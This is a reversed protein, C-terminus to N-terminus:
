RPEKPKDPDKGLTKEITKELDKLKAKLEDTAANAEQPSRVVRPTILVVIETKSTSRGSNGFLAGVVPLDGLLPVRNRSVDTSERIFGSLAITEGDSVSIASTVASKNIVPSVIASTTNPVASSIEQSIDLNVMGADGIQPKVRLIVGTDVMQVQQAFLSSGNSQVPQLSSSTAIPIQSGVQFQAQQNDSVLVSPESLTRVRDQNEQANLFLALERSAGIFAFTQLNLVPLGGGTSAAGFSATTQAPQLTGRSQLFASIGLSLDHSLTVEFVQANLLVQRRPVDLQQITREIEAIEQPTGQIVLQNNIDDTVIRVSNLGQFPAQLPAQVPGAAASAGGAAPTTLPITSAISGAPGSYLESLVRQVDRAKGNKVKYVANRFGSPPAAQDLRDIWRQVEPLVAANPTVVLMSNLHDMAVFRIATTKEALAYASFVTELDKVVDRAMTHSLPVLLVRQGEFANSDFIDVIGLLKQLNSRRDTIMLISGSEYVLISGGESLYPTLVRSMEAAAVYKMRVVHLVMQDDLATVRQSDEVELPMRNATNSPLINYLNGTKVMTAGNTKLITELIPLLESRRLDGSTSINVTGKVRPDISYNLGLADGIIRIVGYLDYNELRLSIPIVPDNQAAPPAQQGAALPITFLLLILAFKKM